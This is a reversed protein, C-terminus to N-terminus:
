ISVILRQNHCKASTFSARDIETLHNATNTLLSNTTFSDFITKSLSWKWMKRPKKFSWLCSPKYFITEKWSQSGCFKEEMCHTASLTDNICCDLSSICAVHLSSQYFKDFVNSNHIIKCNSSAISLFDNLESITIITKIWHSSFLVFKRNIQLM